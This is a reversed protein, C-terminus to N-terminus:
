TAYRPPQPVPPADRPEPKAETTAKPDSARPVGVLKGSADRRLTVKADELVEDPAPRGLPQHRPM